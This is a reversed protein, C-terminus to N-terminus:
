HPEISMCSKCERAGEPVEERPIAKDRADDLPVGPMKAYDYVAGCLSFNPELKSRIHVIKSKPLQFYDSDNRM